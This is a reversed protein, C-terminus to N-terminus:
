ECGAPRSGGPLPQDVPTSLRLSRGDEFAVVAEIPGQLTEGIRLELTGSLQTCFKSARTEVTVPGGRLRSPFSYTVRTPAPSMGADAELWVALDYQLRFSSRRPDPPGPLGISGEGALRVAPTLAIPGVSTRESRREVVFSSRHRRAGLSEVALEHNGARVQGFVFAGDSASRVEERGDLVVRAGAVPQDQMRITGRVFSSTPFLLERLRDGLPTFATVLIAAVVPVAVGLVIKTVRSKEDGAAGM